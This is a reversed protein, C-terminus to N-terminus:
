MAFIFAILLIKPLLINGAKLFAAHISNDHKENMQDSYSYEEDWSGGALLQPTNDLLPLSDSYASDEFPTVHMLPPPPLTDETDEDGENHMFGKNLLSITTRNSALTICSSPTSIDATEYSCTTVDVDVDM